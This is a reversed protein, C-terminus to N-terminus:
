IHAVVYEDGVFKKSYVNGLISQFGRDELHYRFGQGFVGAVQISRMLADVWMERRHAGPWIEGGHTLWVGPEVDWGGRSVCAM